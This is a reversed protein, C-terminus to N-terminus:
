NCSIFCSVELFVQDFYQSLSRIIKMFDKGVNKTTTESVHHLYSTMLVSFEGADKFDGKATEIIANSAVLLRKIQESSVGAAQKQEIAAEIVQKITTYSKVATFM